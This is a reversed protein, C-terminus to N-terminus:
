HLTWTNSEIFGSLIGLVRPIEDMGIVEGSQTSVLKHLKGCDIMINKLTDYVSQMEEKEKLTLGVTIVSEKKVKM